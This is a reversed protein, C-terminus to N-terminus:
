KLIKWEANHRSEVWKKAEEATDLVVVRRFTGDRDYIEETVLRWIGWWRYQIRYSQGNTIIRYKKM